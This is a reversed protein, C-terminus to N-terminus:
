RPTESQTNRWRKYNWTWQEPYLRIVREIESAMLQTLELEDKVDHGGPLVVRSVLRFRFPAVRVCFTSLVGAQSRAVMTAPGSVFETPLEFFQVRPGQRGEPKQDMVFGLLEGRKMTGLMDRLLTKSGTWLVQVDMKARREDLFKTFAESRSPKALVHFPKSAAKRPYYACLEWSGMHATVVVIPKGTAELAAVNAALEEYGEVKISDPKAIAHFTEFACRVQSRLVQKAFMESFHSGPPLKYVRQVNLDILKRDKKQFPWALAALATAVAPVLPRPLALVFAHLM